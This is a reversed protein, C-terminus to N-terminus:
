LKLFISKILEKIFLMLNDFRTFSNYVQPVICLDAVTVDNGYSYKGATDKLMDELATSVVFINHLFLLIFQFLEFNDLIKVFRALTKWNATKRVIRYLM